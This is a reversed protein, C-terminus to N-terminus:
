INDWDIGTIAGSVTAVPQAAAQARNDGKGDRRWRKLIGNVYALTRKENMVALGMAEGIWEAPYDDILDLLTDRVSETVLGFDSQYKRTLMALKPNVAEESKVGGGGSTTYTDKNDITREHPKIVSRYDSKIVSENESYDGKIVSEDMRYDGKIVSEAGSYDGSIVSEAVPQTGLPDFYKNFGWIHPKKPGSEKHYILGKAKLSALTRWVNQRKMRAGAAWQALSIKDEKKNFGYTQRLLFIVCRFEEGTCEAQALKELIAYHIRVYGGSDIQIDNGRTMTM